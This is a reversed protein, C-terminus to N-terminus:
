TYGWINKIQYKIDGFSWQRASRIVSNPDNVYFGSADYDYLVIFHGSTTFDGPRMSCIILGGRNLCAKMEDEDLGLERVTLGYEEAGDSLLTWATGIGEVYHGNRMSYDAIADPTAEGNGTLSLIVMSLCTPACGAIGINSDGYSAYGWRSDWQLLLPNDAELEEESFGDTAKKEADPYGAVFAAMEPNGVLAALLEEPYQGRNAYIAAMEEDEAALRALKEELETDKLLRRTDSIGSSPIGGESGQGTGAYSLGDSAANYTNQIGGQGAKIWYRRIRSIGGCLLIVLIIVCVLFKLRRRMIKKKRKKIVAARNMAAARERRIAESRKRRETALKEKQM